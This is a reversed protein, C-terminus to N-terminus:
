ERTECKALKPPCQLQHVFVVKKLMLFLFGAVIGIAVAQVVQHPYLMQDVFTYLIVFNLSYGFVHTLAYKMLATIFCGKHAFTWRHNGYFGVLAGIVYVLTMALKPGVYLFTLLLYAVYGTLNSAIGIIAYRTLQKM